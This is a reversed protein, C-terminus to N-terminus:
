DQQEGLEVSKRNSIKDNIWSNRKCICKEILKLEECIYQYDSKRKGM